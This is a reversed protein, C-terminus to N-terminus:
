KAVYRICVIDHEPESINCRESLIYEFALEHGYNYAFWHSYVLSAVVSIGIIVKWSKLVANKLGSFFTSTVSLMIYTRFNQNKTM